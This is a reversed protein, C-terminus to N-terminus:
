PISILLEPGCLLVAEIAEIKMFLVPRKAFYSEYVPMCYFCIVM